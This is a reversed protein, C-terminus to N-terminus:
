PFTHQLLVIGLHSFSDGLFQKCVAQLFCHDAAAVSMVPYLCYINVYCGIVHHISSSTIFRYHDGVSYKGSLLMNICYM